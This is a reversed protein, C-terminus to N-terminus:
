GNQKQRGRIERPTCGYIEHFMRNFLKYNTFGHKEAIEMIGDQTNCIDHYIHTLRLQNVYRSFTVGMNKKFFRSFYERSLYFESSISELSIPERHHRDIYTIIEGMREMDASRETMVPEEEWKAFNDKLKPYLDVLLMKDNHILYYNYIADAAGFSYLRPNGSGSFWFSAYDSLIEANRLWRGEYFHHNAACSITNYKGAWPVDPLFETIVFGDPTKKIHKRYTWWRFYYTKELEKDPCEFFPINKRLFDSAGCNPIDQKYLENDERNFQNVYSEIVEPADKILFNQGQMHLPLVIGLAIFLKKIQM